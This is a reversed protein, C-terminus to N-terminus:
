RKGAGQSIGNFNGGLPPPQIPPEPVGPSIIEPLPPTSPNPLGYQVKTTYDATSNPTTTSPQSPTAKRKGFISQMLTNTDSPTRKAQPLLPAEVPTINQPPREAPAAPNVRVPPGKSQPEPIPMPPPALFSMPASSSGHLHIVDGTAWNVRRTEETMIREKEEQNRVIHPTMIIIMETKQNKYTRYRFAAGLFPLDGLFPIKNENKEERKTILGGLMITEGDNAAVTTELQQQNFAPATTGAGINFSEGVSSISPLVRMLVRGDPTIQPTVQLTIGTNQYTPAAPVVLNGTVVPTGPIPISKGVNLYAVQKDLTMVQPRSLVTLRGQIKLARILVSVSDSAATFVFGGLGGGKSVRGVGLDNIGQFGVTSPALLANDPFTLNPNNFSYGPTFTQYAATGATGTVGPIGRQFLLPQQLGIEMGFEESGLMSVETILVQIVVQAPTTDLQAVLQLIKNFYEPTANIMISNSVPEATVVVTRDIMHYPTNQGNATFVTNIKTVFDNVATAVDVATANRLRVATSQRQPFDTDEIRAIIAQVVDVDNQSGAVILSNTKQDVTIRLDIIPAGDPATGSITMTLPRTAGAAGVGGGLGGAGGLAGAAGAGGTGVFLQQLMTATQLADITRLNFITIHSTAKPQTDLDNILALLIPMTKAPASVVLSNTRADPAIRIDELIGSEIPKGDKQPLFWRLKIDKTLPIQQGFAAQQGGVGGGIGGGGIAQAGPVGVEPVTLTNNGISVQLLFALDTAVANKLKIVRLEQEVQNNDPNDIHEILTRIEVLDAPSAQVFVTNSGNESTIRVQNAEPQPFRTAYFNNLVTTVRLASARKLTFPVVRHVDSPPQDLDYIMKEIDDMRGQSPAAVLIAGFRTLPIFVINSPLAAPALTATPAVAPAQGPATPATPQVAGPAGAPGRGPGITIVNQGLNVRGYFNNLINTVSTPDGFRLSIIKIKVQAPEARERLLEILALARELDAQNRARIILQGLEPVPVIEIPLRPADVIGDGLEKGKGLPAKKAPGKPQGEDPQQTLATFVFRNPSEYGIPQWVSKLYRDFGIGAPQQDEAPDYFPSVEPDDMVRSVFFDPGGFDARSIRGKGGGTPSGGGGGNGRFGGGGGGPTLSPTGGGGGGPTFSPIGGGGPMIFTPGGGGGGFPSSGGFPSGGGFTGRFGGGGFSSTGGFGQGNGSQRSTGPNKGQIADIARELLVPDIGKSSVVRVEQKADKVDLQKVLKEIDDFLPQPASVILRNSPDVGIHLIARRDTGSGDTPRSGGGFMFGSMGSSQGSQQTRSVMNEAYLQRIIDAVETVSAYKLPEMVFTKIAVENEIDRRDIHNRLLSRITLMDLPKAKVLMSNTAPDAVIRVNEVRGSSAGGGGVGLMGAMMGGIGPINLGGGGGGGPGGRGGGGGGGQAKGNFAEDLVKAVEVANAYKLRVVEFDGPGAETNLLLRILEQVVAIAEPDESTIILRSGFATITVPPHKKGEPGPGAEKEQPAHFSTSFEKKILQRFQTDTMPLTPAPKKKPEDKLAPKIDFPDKRPAPQSDMGGPRVIKLENPRLEPFLMQIAEAVTVASGKDLNIMRVRGGLVAPNDDLERIITRIEKIQDDTGRIRLSNNEPDAGIYPVAEKPFMEKLQEAFKLADLRVLPILTTKAEPLPDGNIIENIEIHTQPDAYVFLRSPGAVSIRVVSNNKFIETTLVKMMQEANGGRVDHYKITPPGEIRGKDGQFRPADMKAIIARSQELKEVSGTVTVSNTAEDSSVTHPRKGTQPVPGKAGFEFALEKYGPRDEIGAWVLNKANFAAKWNWAVRDDKATGSMRDDILEGFYSAGGPFNLNITSGSLSWSGQTKGKADHMIVSGSTPGSIAAGLAKVLVAELTSARMFKAKHTLTDSPSGEFRSLFEKVEAHLQPDAYVYLRSQGEAAIRAIANSKFIETQLTKALLEANGGRLDYYKITPTGIQYKKQGVERPVDIKVLIAKAQSIKDNQGHIIVTNTGEDTTITTQRQLRRVTSPQNGGPRSGDSGGKGSDGMPTAAKVEVNQTLSGLSRLLVAEAQSARIYECQHTHTHVSSDDESGVIISEHRLLSAVGARIILKNSGQLPTVQGFPRLLRILEPAFEDVNQGKPEVVVEVIETRGRSKLEDMSVRPILLEPIPEDAPVLTLVNDGRLITYKHQGQLIENIIDYVEILTYKRAVGKDDRPNIFTLTGTPTYPSAYPMQTQDAFWTMVAGWPKKDMEFAIKKENWNPKSSTLLVKPEVPKKDGAKPDVAKPDVGKTGQAFTSAAQGILYIGASMLAVVAIRRILKM